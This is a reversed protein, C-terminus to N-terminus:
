CWYNFKLYGEKFFIILCFKSHSGMYMDPVGVRLATDGVHIHSAVTLKAM